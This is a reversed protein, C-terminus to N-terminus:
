SRYVCRKHLTCLFSHMVRRKHESFIESASSIGMHLRKYRFLGEHTTIVAMNRQEEEGARVSPVGQQLGFKSCEKMDNVAYILEEMTKGPYRMRKIAKNQCTNDVTIRIEHEPAVEKPKKKAMRHDRGM